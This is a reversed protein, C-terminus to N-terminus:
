TGIWALAFVPSDVHDDYKANPFSLLEHLYVALAFVTSDVQDDHKSNPFSILEKLYPDLWDAAKPFLVCGGEIKAAQSRLCM